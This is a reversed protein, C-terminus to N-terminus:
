TRRADTSNQAPHHHRPPANAHHKKIHEADRRVCGFFSVPRRQEVVAAALAGTATLEGTYGSAGFIM